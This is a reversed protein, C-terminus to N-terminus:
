CCARAVFAYKWNFTVYEPADIRPFTVTNTFKRSHFLAIQQVYQLICNDARPHPM